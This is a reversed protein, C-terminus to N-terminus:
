VALLKQKDGDTDEPLEPLGELWQLAVQVAGLSIRIAVSIGDGQSVHVTFEPTRGSKSSKKKV